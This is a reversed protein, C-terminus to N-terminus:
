LFDDNNELLETESTVFSLELSYSCLIKYCVLIFISVYKPCSFNLHAKYIPNSM